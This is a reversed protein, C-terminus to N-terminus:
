VPVPFLPLTGLLAQMGPRADEVWTSDCDVLFTGVETWGRPRLSTKPFVPRPDVSTTWQVDGSVQYLGDIVQVEINQGDESLKKLDGRLLKLSQKFYETTQDTVQPWLASILQARPSPGHLLLYALLERSKRLKLSWFRGDQRVQFTGFLSVQANQPQLLPAIWPGLNTDSRLATLKPLLLRADTMLPGAHGLKTLVQALAEACDEGLALLYAYARGQDWIYLDGAELAAKFGDRAKTPDGSAYAVVSESFRQFTEHQLKGAENLQRARRLLQQAEAFEGQIALREAMWAVARFEFVALRTTQLIDLSSRLSILAEEHRGYMHLTYARASDLYRFWREPLGPLALAEEVVALAEDPHGTDVLYSAYNNAIEAQGSVQGVIKWFDLARLFAADAREYEGNDNLGVAVMSAGYAAMLMNGKGEAEDVLQQGVRVQAPLDGSRGLGLAYMRLLRLREPANPHLRLGEAAFDRLRDFRGAHMEVSAMYTLLLPDRSGKDYAAFMLREARLGTEADHDVVFRTWATIVQLRLTDLGEPAQRRLRLSDALDDNQIAELMAEELAHAANEPQGAYWLHWVRRAAGLNLRASAQAHLARSVMPREAALLEALVDSLASPVYLRGDCGRRVPLAAQSAMTWWGDPLGDVLTPTTSPHWVAETVLRLLIDRLGPDLRVVERRVEDLAAQMDAQRLVAMVGRRWGLTAQWLDDADVVPEPGLMEVLESRSMYNQDGPEFRTEVADPM